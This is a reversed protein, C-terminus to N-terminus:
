PKQVAEGVAVGTDPTLYRPEEIGVLDMSRAATELVSISSLEQINRELSRVEDTFFAYDKELRHLRSGTTSQASVAILYAIGLSVCGCLLLITFSFSATRTRSHVRRKTACPSSFREVTVARTHSM